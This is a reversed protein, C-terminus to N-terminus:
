QRAEEPMLTTIVPVTYSVRVKVDGTLMDRSTQVTQNAYTPVARLQGLMDSTLGLWEARTIRVVTDEAVIGADIWDARFDYFHTHPM